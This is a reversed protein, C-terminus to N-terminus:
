EGTIEKAAAVVDAPIQYLKKIATEVEAGTLPTVTMAQKEADALFEPDKMTADFAAQLAALRDAPVNKPAVFPRGILAAATLLDFTEKKKPDTLLDGAYAM